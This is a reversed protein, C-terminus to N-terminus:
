QLITAGKELISCEKVSLTGKHLSIILRSNNMVVIDKLEEIHKIVTPFGVQTILYEVGDLLIVSEESKKSFDQIIYNLKSLDNPNLANETESNSLWLMPTQVLKFRRKIKEPYMRSIVFGPIGHNVLDCFIVLSKEPNKEMVIYCESPELWHKFETKLRKEAVPEVLVRTRDIFAACM